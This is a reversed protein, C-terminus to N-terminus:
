VGQVCTTLDVATGTGIIKTGTGTIEGGRPVPVTMYGHAEATQTGVLLILLAKLPGKLEMIMINKKTNTNYLKTLDIVVKKNFQSKGIYLSSTPSLKGGSAKVLLDVTNTSEKKNPNGM